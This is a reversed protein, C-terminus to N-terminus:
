DAVTKQDGLICMTVSGMASPWCMQGPIHVAGHGPGSVDLHTGTLPKSKAPRWRLMFMDLGGLEERNRVGPWQQANGSQALAQTACKPPQLQCPATSSDLAPRQTPTPQGYAASRASALLMPVLWIKPAGAVGKCAVGEFGTAIHLLHWCLWMDEEVPKTLHVVPLSALADSSLAARRVGRRDGIGRERADQM